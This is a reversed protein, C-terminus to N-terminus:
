SISKENKRGGVEGDGAVADEEGQVRPSSQMCISVGDLYSKMKYTYPTAWFLQMNRKESTHGLTTSVTVFHFWTTVSM